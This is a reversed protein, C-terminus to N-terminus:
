YNFSSTFKYEDGRYVYLGLAVPRQEAIYLAQEIFFGPTGENAQLIQAETNNLVTANISTTSSIPVFGSINEVLKSFTYEKIEEERLNLTYLQQEDKVIIYKREFVMPKGSALKLFSLYLISKGQEIELKDAVAKSAAIIKEEILKAEPVLGQERMDQSFETVKFIIDNHDQRAVFTGRGRESVILGKKNLIEFARRVTMRSLGLRESWFTESEIKEGPQLEGSKIKEEIFRALQHYAPEFSSKDIVTGPTNFLSSEM